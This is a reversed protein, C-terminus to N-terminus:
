FGGHEALHAREEETSERGLIENRHPYRGFRDIIAQHKLEYALYQRNSLAGLLEVAREHHSSNESHMFPLYVFARREEAIVKDMGKEVAHNALFIARDDEAFASPDGRFINRSFQDLILIAALVSDASQMYRQHGSKQIDRYAPLFRRRVEADFQANKAFRKKAPTQEFWFDLVEKTVQTVDVM